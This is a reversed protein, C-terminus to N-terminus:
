GLRIAEIIGSQQDMLTRMNDYGYESGMVSMLTNHFHRMPIGEYDTPEFKLSSGVSIDKVRTRIRSGVYGPPITHMYEIDNIM